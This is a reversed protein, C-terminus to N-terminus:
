LLEKIQTAAMPRGMLFGQVELCGDEVLMELKWETEVGEATVKLSLAQGLALIARVIARGGRISELDSIFQRDIKIVDFSYSRLYSLSAYGIGFDDIAM